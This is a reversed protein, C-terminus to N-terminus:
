ALMAEKKKKTREKKAPEVNGQSTNLEPKVNKRVEPAIPMSAALEDAEMEEMKQLEAFIEDEDIDALEGSLLENIEDQYATAEANEEMLQEIDEINLEENMKTLAATGIKMAEFVEKNWKAQELDMLMKEINQIKADTGDRQKTHQKKKWLALKAKQKNIKVLKKAIELDKEIAKELRVVYKQLKRKTQKLELVAEEREDLGDNDRRKSKPKKPKSFLFGM